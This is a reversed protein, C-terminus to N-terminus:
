PVCNLAKQHTEPFLKDILQKIISIIGHDFVIQCNYFSQNAFFLEFQIGNLARIEFLQQSSKLLSMM